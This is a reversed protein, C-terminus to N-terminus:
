RRVQTSNLKLKWTWPKHIALFAVFATNIAFFLFVGIPFHHELFSSVGHLSSIRLSKGLVLLALVVEPGLRRCSCLLVLTLFISRECVQSRRGYGRSGKEDDTRGSLDVDLLMINSLSRGFCHVRCRGYPVSSRARVVEKRGQNKGAAPRSSKAFACCKGLQVNINSNSISSSKARTKLM